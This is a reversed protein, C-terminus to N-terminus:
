SVEYSRVVIVTVVGYSPKQRNGKQKEESRTERRSIEAGTKESRTIAPTIERLYNKACQFASVAEFL